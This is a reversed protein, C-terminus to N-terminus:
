DKKHEEVFTKLSQKKRKQFWALGREIMDRNNERSNCSPCCPVVNDITHGETNKLRNCGVKGIGQVGCYVCPRYAINKLFWEASITQSPDFGREKDMWRYNKVMNRAYGMPNTNPNRYNANYWANYAKYKENNKARWEAKRKREDDRHSKRYEAQQKRIADKNKAYYERHYEAQKKLIAEKSAQYYEAQQKLIADKNAQYYDSNYAKACEKCYSRLGDKKSKDESFQTIPLVRDCKPCRKTKVEEEIIDM